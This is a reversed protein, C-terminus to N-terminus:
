EIFKGHTLESVQIILLPFQIIELGDRQRLNCVTYSICNAQIDPDVLMEFKVYIITWVLKRYKLSHDWCVDVQKPVLALFSIEAGM